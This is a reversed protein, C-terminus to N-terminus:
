ISYIAEMTIFKQYSLVVTYMYKIFQFDFYTIWFFMIMPNFTAEYMLPHCSCAKLGYAM